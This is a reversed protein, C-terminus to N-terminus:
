ILIKCASLAVSRSAPLRTLTKELEGSEQRPVLLVLGSPRTNESNLYSNKLNYHIEDVIKSVNEVMSLASRLALILEIVVTYWM